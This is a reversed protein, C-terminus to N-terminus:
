GDKSQETASVCIIDAPLYRRSCPPRNIPLYYTPPPRWHPCPLGKIRPLRASPASPSQTIFFVLSTEPCFSFILARGRQEQAVASVIMVAGGGGGFRRSVDTNLLRSQEQSPRSCGEEGRSFLTYETRGCIM